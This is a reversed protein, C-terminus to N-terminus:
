SAGLLHWWVPLTFFSVPIGVGVMLTVLPPDLDHDMAVISAGIMPGMAAEFVTVSFTQWDHRLLGELLLFILAPAVVLKFLLGIGLAYAKGRVQSFQIQYGVSVLALPVLTSGLRRFLEDLWAPYTFPMLLLALVFAQFPVFLAIKRAVAKPDIRDGSSYLSAVLIGVTSLVFYSGLQDILIGLGLFQQGYFTEIMPLGIFSTNALGGTLTLAGTTSRSLGAAKAVYHFFVCGIGFMVWPMLAPLILSARLQLSHVYTLTLAPLSIHVVFGNLAAAANAPLRGSRRLIIGLLFCAALLIYNNMLGGLDRSGDPGARLPRVSSVSRLGFRSNIGCVAAYYM